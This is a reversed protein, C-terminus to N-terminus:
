LLVVFGLVFMMEVFSRGLSPDYGGLADGEDAEFTADLEDAAAGTEIPSPGATSTKTEADDATASSAAALLALGVCLALLRPRRFRTM